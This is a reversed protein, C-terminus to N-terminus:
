AAFSFCMRYSEKFHLSNVNKNNGKYWTHEYM